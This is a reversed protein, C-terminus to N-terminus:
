QLKDVRIYPYLYGERMTNRHLLLLFNVHQVTVISTEWIKSASAPVLLDESFKIGIGKSKRCCLSERWCVVEECVEVFM